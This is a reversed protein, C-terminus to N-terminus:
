GITVDFEALYRQLHTADDITVKGNGDVDAARLQKGSLTNINALHRQIATVDRISIRGDGTVDGTMADEWEIFTFGNDNAYQEAASGPVGYITFGDIKDEFNGVYGFSRNGISTVSDPIIVSTLGTCGHFAEYGISTVSDPITVSTLGTCYYFADADISTVSDPITVSTLGTRARFAAFAIEKTGDRIIISTNDPMTGKYRYAVRGAYVVGDPQNNEWTTGAFAYSGISTVSDPITVSTLGTCECFAAYGIITVSNGITVSTLGTCEYFAYGNIITVSDPITVSTLGTCGRFAFAGISTVSDPITVSTLLKCGYFAMYGISTVGGEIVVTKINAGWPATTISTDGSDKSSYDGMAGNGSITLTGNDDLTWTCDGTKGSSAGVSQEQPAVEAASAAFPVATFLLMASLLVALSKKIITKM